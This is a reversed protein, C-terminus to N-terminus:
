LEIWVDVITYHKNAMPVAKMSMCTMCISQLPKLEDIALMVRIVKQAISCREATSHPRDKKEAVVISDASFQTREMRNTQKGHLYTADRIIALKGDLQCM